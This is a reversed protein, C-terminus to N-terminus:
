RSTCLVGPVPSANASASMAAPSATSAASTTPTANTPSTKSASNSASATPSTAGSATTSCPTAAPPPGATTPPPKTRSPPSSSNSPTKWGLVRGDFALTSRLPAIRYLNDHNSRNVGRVYSVQGRLGFDETFAYRFSADIGYLDARNVNQYQLVPLGGVLRAIPVGQIYDRVINYFPTAKVQWKEGHYDATFALQYSTESNLDPNGLYSRGDAM